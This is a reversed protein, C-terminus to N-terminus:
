AAVAKLVTQQRRIDALRLAAHAIAELVEPSAHTAHLIVPGIALWTNVGDGSAYVATPDTDLHVTAQTIHPSM